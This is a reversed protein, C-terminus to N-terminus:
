RSMCIFSCWYSLFATFSGSLIQLCTRIWMTPAGGGRLRRSGALLMRGLKESPSYIIQYRQKYKVFRPYFCYCVALNWLRHNLLILFDHQFEGEYYYIHSCMVGNFFTVWTAACIRASGRALTHNIDLMLAVSILINNGLLYQFQAPCSLAFFLKM